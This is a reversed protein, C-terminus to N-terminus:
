FIWLLQKHLDVYPKTWSSYEPTLDKHSSHHKKCQLALDHWWATLYWPDMIVHLVNRKSILGRKCHSSSWWGHSLHKILPMSEWALVNRIRCLPNRKKCYYIPPKTSPSEQELIQSFWMCVLVTHEKNRRDKCWEGFRLKHNTTIVM